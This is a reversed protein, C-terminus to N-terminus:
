SAEAAARRAKGMREQRRSYWVSWLVLVGVTAYGVVPGVILYESISMAFVLLCAVAASLTMGAGWVLTMVTMMRRFHINGQMATFSEAESASRRVLTARALEYILPRGIAASGVFILGILGTVLNERLQLFRVSGGGVFALLSLGIGGLVLASMADIRRKRAFEILSWAIPPASSAMLARVDGLDHRAFRYILYPSVLNVLIEFGIGAGRQRVFAWVKAFKV